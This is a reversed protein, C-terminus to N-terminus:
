RSSSVWQDSRPLRRAPSRTASRRRSQASEEFLASWLGRAGVLVQRARGMWGEDRRRRLYPLPTKPQAKSRAVRM